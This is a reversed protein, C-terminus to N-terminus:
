SGDEWGAPALFSLVTEGFSAERVVRWGSPAVPRERSSHQVVLLGGPALLSMSGVRSVTEDVLGREYPPDAFIVDFSWGEAALAPLAQAVSLRRVDAGDMLGTRRLNAELASLARRDNEVFVVRRAGRSLAEIGVAGTGAFLDLWVRGVTWPALIDMLSQRVRDSTPRVRMGKPAVLERGKAQGAIVRM